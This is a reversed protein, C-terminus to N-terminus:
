RTALGTTLTYRVLRSIISNTRSLDLNLRHVHIVDNVVCKEFGSSGRRLYFCLLIAIFVDGITAYNILSRLPPFSKLTSAAGISFVSTVAPALTQFESVLKIRIDQIAMFIDIAFTALCMSGLFLVMVINRGSFVYIRISIFQLNHIIFEITLVFRWLFFAQCMITALGLPILHADFTWTSFDLSDPNGWNVVLYNYTAQGILILHILDM